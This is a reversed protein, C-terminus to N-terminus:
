GGRRDPQPQLGGPLVAPGSGSARVHDGEILNGSACRYCLRGGGLAIRNRERCNLCPVAPRAEERARVRAFEMRLDDLVRLCPRGPIPCSPDGRRSM